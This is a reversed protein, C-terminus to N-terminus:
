FNPDSSACARLPSPMLWVYRVMHGHTFNHLGSIASLPPTPYISRCNASLVEAYTAGQTICHFITSLLIFPPCPATVRFRPWGALWSHQPLLSSWFFHVCLGLYLYFSHSSKALCIDRQRGEMRGSEACKWSTLRMPIPPILRISTVRDSSFAWREEKLAKADGALSKMNWSQLLSPIAM